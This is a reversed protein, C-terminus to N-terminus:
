DGRDLTERLDELVPQAEAWRRKMDAAADTAQQLADVLDPNDAQRYAEVRENAEIVAGLAEALTEAMPEFRQQLRTAKRGIDVLAPDETAIAEANLEALTVKFTQYAQLGAYTECAARNGTKYVAHAQPDSAEALRECAAGIDAGEPLGVDGLLTSMCATCTGLLAVLGVAAWKLKSMIM